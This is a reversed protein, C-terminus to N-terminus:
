KCIIVGSDERMHDDANIPKITVTEEADSWEEAKAVLKESNKLNENNLNMKAQIAFNGIPNIGTGSRRILLFPHQEKPLNGDAPNIHPPPWQSLRANQYQQKQHQHVAALYL